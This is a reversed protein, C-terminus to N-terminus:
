GADQAHRARVLGAGKGFDIGKLADLSLDKSV